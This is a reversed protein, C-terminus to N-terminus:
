VSAEMIVMGDRPPECPVPALAEEVLAAPSGPLPDLKKWTWEYGAEGPRDIARQERRYVDGANLVVTLSGDVVTATHGSYQLMTGALAGRLRAVQEELQHKEHALTMIRQQLRQLDSPRTMAHM